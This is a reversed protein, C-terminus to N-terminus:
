RLSSPLKVGDGLASLAPSLWLVIFEEFSNLEKITVLLLYLSKNSRFSDNLYYVYDHECTSGSPQFAHSPHVSAEEVVLSSLQEDMDEFLKLFNEQVLALAM